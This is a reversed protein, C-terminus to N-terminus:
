LATEEVLFRKNLGPSQRRPLGSAKVHMAWAARYAYGHKDYPKGVIQGTTADRIIHKTEM